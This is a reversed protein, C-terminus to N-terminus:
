SQYGRETIKFKAGHISYGQKEIDALIESHRTGLIEPTINVTNLFELLGVSDRVTQPVSSFPDGSPLFLYSGKNKTQYVDVTVEVTRISNPKLTAKM